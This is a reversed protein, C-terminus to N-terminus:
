KKNVRKQNNDKMFLSIALILTSIGLGLYFEPYTLNISEKISVTGTVTMYHWFFFFYIKVAIIGTISGVCIWKSVKKNFPYWLGILFLGIAILTIPHLLVITGRVEQIKRAGGFWSLFMTAINILLLITLIIKKKAGM